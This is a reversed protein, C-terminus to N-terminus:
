LIKKGKPTQKQLPPPYFPFSHHPTLFSSLAHLDTLSPYGPNSSCSATIFDTPKFVVSQSSCILEPSM